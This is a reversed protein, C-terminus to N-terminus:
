IDLVLVYIDFVVEIVQRSGTVGSGTINFYISKAGTYDNVTYTTVGSDAGTDGNNYQNTTDDLKTTLWVKTNTSDTAGSTTQLNWTKLYTEIIQEKDPVTYILGSNTGDHTISGTWTVTRKEVSFKPYTASTGGARVKASLQIEGTGNPDVIVNGNTDVSSLTNGLMKLNGVFATKYRYTASGLDEDNDQYNSTTNDIPKIAGTRNTRILNMQDATLETGAVFTTVFDAM